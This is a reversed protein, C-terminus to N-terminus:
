RFLLRESWHCMRLNCYVEVKRRGGLERPTWCFGKSRPLVYIVEWDRGGREANELDNRLSSLTLGRWVVEYTGYRHFLLQSWEVPVAAWRIYMSIHYMERFLCINWGVAVRERFDVCDSWLVNCCFFKKWELFDTQNLYWDFVIQSSLAIQKNHSIEFGLFYRVLVM